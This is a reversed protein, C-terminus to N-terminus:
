EKRIHVVSDAIGDFDATHSSVLVICGRKKLDVIMDRIREANDKDLSATPEDCILLKPRKLIARAFSLRQKEGGSLEFPFHETRHELDVTRLINNVQEAYESKLCSCCEISLLINDRVSLRELLNAEQFVFGVMNRRLAEVRKRKLAFVSTDDFFLEGSDPKDILGLISLLTTKGSGSTGKFVWLEGSEIKCSFDKIVQLRHKEKVYSKNINVAKLIM